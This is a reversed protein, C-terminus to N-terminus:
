SELWGVIGIMDTSGSLLSYVRIPARVKCVNMPLKSRVDRTPHASSPGSVAGLAADVSNSLVLITALVLWFIALRASLAMSTIM